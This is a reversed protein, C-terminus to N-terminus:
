KGQEYRYIFNGKTDILGFSRLGDWAVRACGGSFTTAFDYNEDIVMDGSTNIYGISGILDTSRSVPALGNSFTGVQCYEPEIVWEGEKDMFGISCKGELTQLAIDRVPFLGESYDGAPFYGDTLELVFEGEPNIFGVKRDEGLSVVAAYGNSFSRAARFPGLVKEGKTDIFIWSQVFLLENVEIPVNALGDNFNGTQNGAFRPRIVFAGTTDIYGWKGDVLVAALGESFPMARDFKEDFPFEGDQNIYTEAKTSQLNNFPALGDVM